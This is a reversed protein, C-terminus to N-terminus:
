LGPHTNQYKDEETGWLTKPRVIECDSCGLRVSLIVDEPGKEKNIFLLDLLTHGEKAWGTGADLLLGQCGASITQM